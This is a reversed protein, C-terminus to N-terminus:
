IKTGIVREIIKLSERLRDPRHHENDDYLKNKLIRDDEIDHVFKKLENCRYDVYIYNNIVDEDLVCNQSYGTLRFSNVSHLEYQKTIVNYAIFVDGKTYNLLRTSINNKNVFRLEPQYRIVQKYDM